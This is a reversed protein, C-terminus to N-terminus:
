FVNKAFAVSEFVCSFLIIDLHKVKLEQWNYPEVL